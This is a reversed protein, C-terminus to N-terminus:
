PYEDLVRLCEMAEATRGGWREAYPNLGSEAIICALCLLMPVHVRKAISILQPRIDQNLTNVM